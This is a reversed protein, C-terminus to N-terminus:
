NNIIRRLVSYMVKTLGMDVFCCGRDDGFSVRVKRYAFAERRDLRTREAIAKLIFEKELNSLVLQRMKPKIFVYVICARLIAIICFNYSHFWLYVCEFYNQLCDWIM